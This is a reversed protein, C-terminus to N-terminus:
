AGSEQAARGTPALSRFYAVVSPVAYLYVASFVLGIFPTLELSLLGNRERALFAHAPSQAAAVVWYLVIATRAWRRPKALGRWALFLLLSLVSAVAVGVGLALPTPLAEYVESGDGFGLTLSAVWVAYFIGGVLAAWKGFRLLAPTSVVTAPPTASSM